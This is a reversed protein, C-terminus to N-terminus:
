EGVGKVQGDNKAENHPRLRQRINDGEMTKAAKEKM